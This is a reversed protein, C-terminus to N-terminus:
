SNNSSPAPPFAVDLTTQQTAGHLERAYKPNEAALLRHKLASNEELRCVSTALEVAPVPVDAM